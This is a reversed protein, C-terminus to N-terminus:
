PDAIFRYIMTRAGNIEEARLKLERGLLEKGNAYEYIETDGEPGLM